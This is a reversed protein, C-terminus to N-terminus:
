IKFNRYSLITRVKAQMTSYPMKIEICAGLIRNESANALGVECGDFGLLARSHRRRGDVSSHAVPLRARGPAHGNTEMGDRDHQNNTRTHPRLTEKIFMFCSQVRSYARNVNLSM